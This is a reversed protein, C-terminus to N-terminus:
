PASHGVQQGLWRSFVAAGKTNLHNYDSWGDDPLLEQPNPQWFTVQQEKSLIKVEDVFTQYDDQGRGFLYYYGTAVPMQVVMVKTDRLNHGMIRQLGDTNEQLMEYNSLIRQYYSLEVFGHQPDPPEEVYTSVISKPIFGNDTIDSTPEILPTLVTNFSFHLLHYLQQIYRYFYSHEVLWGKLSLHGLRYQIWSSELVSAADPANSPVVYDRADTGYILLGPQYDEILIQALAAASVATAADIGFNFCNLPQGTAGKYGVAFAAPDFDLNVTSSGIAICDIRGEQQVIAQLRAL